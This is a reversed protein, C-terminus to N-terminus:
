LIFERFVSGEPVMASSICSDYLTALRARLSKIREYGFMYDKYCETIDNFYKSIIFVEYPLLSSILFDAKTSYPLINSLENDRVNGWLKMTDEANTNRYFYDRVIRRMLRIEENTFDIDCISLSRDVNIFISKVNYRKLISIIEPYMAQIGEIIYVDNDSPIYEEGFTRTKTKFDFHPLVTKNGNMLNNIAEEFCKVDIAEITEFNIVNREIMQEIDFYFDDVSIVKAKKGSKELLSTILTATTTKGSCTPGCLTIVKVCSDFILSNCIRDIQRKFENECNDVFRLAAGYNTYLANIKVM